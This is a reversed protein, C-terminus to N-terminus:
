PQVVGGPTLAFSLVGNASAHMNGGATVTVTHTSGNANVTVTYTGSSALDTIVHRTQAAPTTYTVTGSIATGAAATGFVLASNGAASQLLVGTVPGATVTL